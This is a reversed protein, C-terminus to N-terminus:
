RGYRGHERSEIAQDRETQTDDAEDMDVLQWNAAGYKQDLEDDTFRNSDDRCDGSWRCPHVHGCIGCDYFYRM